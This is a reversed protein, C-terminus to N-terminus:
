ARREDHYKVTDRMYVAWKQPSSDPENVELNADELKLQAFHLEKIM